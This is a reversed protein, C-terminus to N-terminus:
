YNVMRNQPKNEAVPHIMSGYPDSPTTKDIFDDLGECRMTNKIDAVAAHPGNLLPADQPPTDQTYAGPSTIINEKLKEQLNELSIM